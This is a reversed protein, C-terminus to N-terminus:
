IHILSLEQATVPSAAAREAIFESLAFDSQRMFYSALNDLPITIGSGILKLGGPVLVGVVAGTVADSVYTQVGSFECSSVDQVTRFSTMSAAGALASRSWFGLTLRGIKFGASAGFVGEPVAFLAMAEAGVQANSVSPYTRSDSREPANAVNPRLLTYLGAVIPVILWLWTYVEDEAAGKHVSFTGTTKALLGAEAEIEERSSINGTRQALQVQAVHALEHRLVERLSPGGLTGVGPGLFIREGLCCAQAGMRGTAAHAFSDRHVTVAKFQSFALSRVEEGVDMNTLASRLPIGQSQSLLRGIETM